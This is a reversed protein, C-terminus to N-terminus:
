QQGIPVTGIASLWRRIRDGFNYFEYVKTLYSHSVSDFAKSMDISVIAGKIRNVKCFNMNELTNIIVEHLQRIQRSKNFGM